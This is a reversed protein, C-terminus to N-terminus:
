VGRCVFNSPNLVNVFVYVSHCIKKEEREVLELNDRCNIRVIFYITSRKDIHRNM